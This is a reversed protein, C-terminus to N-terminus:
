SGLTAAAQRNETAYLAYHVDRTRGERLLQWHSPLQVDAAPPREVYVQASEALWPTLARAATDWLGADFPPDLFVLDFRASAPTALWALADATEIRLDECHLRKASARLADALVPDREVMVVEGAGRSAAEFGLAGTGAFLDLVRRGAIRQQLWNFLTERVRDGTPRLGPRDPVPLKSGRLTGAIIRVQGPPRKNM